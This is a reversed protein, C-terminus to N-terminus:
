CAFFVKKGPMSRALPHARYVCFILTPLSISNRSVFSNVRSTGILDCNLACRKVPHLDDYQTWQTAPFARM